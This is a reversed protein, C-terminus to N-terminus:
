QLLRLGSEVSVVHEGDINRRDRVSLRRLLDDIKILLRHSADPLQRTHVIGCEAQLNRPAVGARKSRSKLELSFTM